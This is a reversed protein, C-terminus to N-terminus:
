YKIFNEPVEPLETSNVKSLEYLDHVTTTRNTDTFEASEVSVYEGPVDLFLYVDYVLSDATPNIEDCNYGIWELFSVETDDTLNEIYLAPRGEYETVVSEKSWADIDEDTISYLDFFKAYNLYQGYIVEEKYLAWDSEPDTDLNNDAFTGDSMLYRKFYTEGNLLNTNDPTNHRGEHLINEDADMYFYMDEYVHDDVPNGDADTQNTYYRAHRMTYSEYDMDRVEELFAIIEEETMSLTEEETSEEELTETEETTSEEEVTSEEMAITSDEVPAEVVKGCATFTLTVVLLLTTLLLNKKM